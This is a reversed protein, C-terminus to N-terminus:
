IVFRVICERQKLTKQLKRRSLFNMIRLYPQTRTKVCSLDILTELIVKWLMSEGFVRFVIVPVAESVDLM